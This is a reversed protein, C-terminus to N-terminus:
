EPLPQGRTEPALWIIAVGVLYVAGITSCAYAHSLVKDQGFLSMLPGTQLAGVAAIIRGFNFAFGQGTARVRTRFLEPLYLPLWGYFSATLGGLFFVSVLLAPGYAANGLYFALTAALSGLCLFVYTFRRGIANGLLAGGMTGLIAGLGSLIQTLSRAQNATQAVQPAHPDTGRREAQAEILKGTWSPALQVSAWTGLLAVGSLCAGLLMRRLTPGATIVETAAVPGRASEAAARSLYRFVPFVFGVIAMALGVISGAVRVALPFTTGPSWLFIMGLPGCAGVLVALLDRTAWHSTAGQQKEDRWRQSEPVFLRIFFTLLAPLAGILMMLRWASHSVLTDVSAQSLGAGILLRETSEVFQGLGLGIVAVLLFGVNSAAGILGALLGRSRDPWIEMVLAVGLSWEGGMGLSSIFRYIFVEAPSRAVGCLGMFIAYTLVSLTMARVRGLRDGLWGFLVGGTAAGVLFGAIMLGFWVDVHAAGEPGLLDTLAPRGVLPFLGMEFGDFMWGLFAALLTM